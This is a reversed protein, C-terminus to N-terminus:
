VTGTERNRQDAQVQERLNVIERRRGSTLYRTTGLSHRMTFQWPDFGLAKIMTEARKILTGSLGFWALLDKVKVGKPEYLAHNVRGIIWCVAAAASEPRGKRRFIQPDARVVDALFRQCAAGFESDFLDASCRRCLDDVM